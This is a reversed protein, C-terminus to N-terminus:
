LPWRGKRALAVAALQSNVGLKSLVSRIQSRVTAVAVFNTRAISEVSCGDVLAGLVERERPTLREFPELREAVDVRHSRLEQLLESRQSTTLLSGGDSAHHVAAILHEFPEHKGVIGLAGAEICEALRVRNTEGTVVVVGAGLERLSPILPLATVGGELVLDLLVIEPRHEAAAAIVAAFDLGALRIVEFGEMSLAVTVSQALLTHDEVLMVRVVDTPM